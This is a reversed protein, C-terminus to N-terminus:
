NEIQLVRCAERYARDISAYGFGRRALFGSIKKRLDDASLDSWRQLRNEIAQWAAAEDNQDAVAEEVVQRGIGKQRLEYTLARRSRPRFGQRNDVWFRAFAADDLYGAEELRTLVQATAEDTLRKRQLYQTVEARSRPRFSLYRLAQDYAREQEDLARLAKIEADSLMQGLRLRAAELAPLGFAYDGDLYVSVREHNRQQFKLATITGAV